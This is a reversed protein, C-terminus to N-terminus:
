GFRRCSKSVRATRTDLEVAIQQNTKGEHALVIKAREGLRRETKGRRLWESLIGKEEETLQIAFASRRM